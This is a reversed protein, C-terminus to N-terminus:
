SPSSCSFGSFKRSSRARRSRRPTGIRRNSSPTATSSMMRLTSPTTSASSSSLYGRCRSSCATPASPCAATLSVGPFPTTQRDSPLDEELLPPHGVLRCAPPPHTSPLVFLPTVDSPPRHYILIAPTGRMTQDSSEPQCNHSTTRRKRGANLNRRNEQSATIRSSVQIRAPLTSQRGASTM